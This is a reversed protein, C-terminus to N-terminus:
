RNGARLANQVRTPHSLTGKGKKRGDPFGFPARLRTWASLRHLPRDRRRRRLPRSRAHSSRPLTAHDYSQVESPRWIRVDSRYTFTVTVRCHEHQRVKPKTSSRIHRVEEISSLAM